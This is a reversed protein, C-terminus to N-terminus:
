GCDAFYGSFATSFADFSAMQTAYAAAAARGAATNSGPISSSPM